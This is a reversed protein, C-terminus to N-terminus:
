EDKISIKSPSIWNKSLSSFHKSKQGVYITKIFPKLHTKQMNPNM